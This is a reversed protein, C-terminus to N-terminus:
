IKEFATRWPIRENRDSSSNGILEAILNSDGQKIHQEYGEDTFKKEATGCGGM